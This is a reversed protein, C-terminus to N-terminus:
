FSSPNTSGSSFLSISLSVLPSPVFWYDRGNDKVMQNISNDHAVAFAQMKGTSNLTWNMESPVDDEGAHLRSKAKTEEDGWVNWGDTSEM